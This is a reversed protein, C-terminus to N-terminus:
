AAVGSAAPTHGSAAVGSAAPAADRTAICLHINTLFFLIVMSDMSCLFQCPLGPLPHKFRVISLFLTCMLPLHISPVIHSLFEPHYDSSDYTPLTFPSLLPIQPQPSDRLYALFEPYHFNGPDILTVRAIVEQLLVYPVHVM